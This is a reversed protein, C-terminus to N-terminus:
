KKVESFEADVVNDDNEESSKDTSGEEAKADAGADGFVGAFDLRLALEWREDPILLGGLHLGGAHHLAWRVYVPLLIDLREAGFIYRIQKLIKNQGSSNRCSFGYRLGFQQTSENRLQKM